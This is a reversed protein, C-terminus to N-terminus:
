GILWCYAEPETNTAAIATAHFSAEPCYASRLDEVAQYTLAGHRGIAKELEPLFVPPYFGIEGAIVDMLREIPCREKTDRNFPPQARPTLTLLHAIEHWRTFFRRARKEDGRCDIVAVYRDPADVASEREILEAFTWNDLSHKLHAFVVDGKNVYEQIVQKLDDDNHIERFTLGLERCMEREIDGVSTHSSVEPLWSEIKTLCYDVIQMVPRRSPELGLDTAYQIIQPAKDLRTM